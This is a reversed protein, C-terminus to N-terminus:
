RGSRDKTQVNGARELSIAQWIRGEGQGAHRHFVLPISVEGMKMVRTGKIQDPSTMRCENGRTRFIGSVHVRQRRSNIFHQALDRTLEIMNRRILVYMALM